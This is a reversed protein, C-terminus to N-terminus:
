YEPAQGTSRIVIEEVRAEAPLRLALRLAEAV